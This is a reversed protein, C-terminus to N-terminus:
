IWLAPLSSNALIKIILFTFLSWFTFLFYFFYSAECHQLKNVNELMLVGMSELQCSNYILGPPMCIWSSLLMWIPSKLLVNGFYVFELWLVVKLQRDTRVSMSLPGRSPVYRCRSLVVHRYMCVDLSSWTVTRVSMSLPGRSPIYRCRSLVVHHYTGVDLSSWTVTRVSMSLPGRSPVYRCRSLVVHRGPLRVGRVRRAPQPIPDVHAVHDVPQSVSGVHVCSGIPDHRCVPPQLSHRRDGRIQSPVLRCKALTSVPVSRSRLASCLIAVCANCMILCACYM